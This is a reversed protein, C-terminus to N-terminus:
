QSQEDDDDAVEEDDPNTVDSDESDETEEDEAEDEAEDEHAEFITGETTTLGGYADELVDKLSRNDM